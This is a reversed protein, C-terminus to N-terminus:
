AAARKPSVGQKAMLKEIRVTLRHARRPNSDKIRDRIATLEAIRDDLQDFASTRIATVALQCCREEADEASEGARPKAAMYAEMADVALLTTASVVEVTDLRGDRGAAAFLGAAQAIAEIVDDKGIRM